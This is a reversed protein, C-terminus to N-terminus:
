QRSGPVCGTAGADQVGGPAVTIRTVHLRDQPDESRDLHDPPVAAHREAPRLLPAQQRHQGDVRALHDALVPQDVREPVPLRRPGRGLRQLVVDHPHAAPQVTQVPRRDARPGRPVEEVTCRGVHPGDLCQDRFTPLRGPPAVVLARGRPELLRQPVPPAGREGLERVPRPRARLGAPEVLQALGHGLLPQGRDQLRTAVVLGDRLALLEHGLLRQALPAPGLQHHREVAVAPLALRQRRVPPQDRHEGVLEPDTGAGLRPPDLRRDERVVRSQQRPRDLRDVGAGRRRADAPLLLERRQEPVQRLGRVAPAPDGEEGTLGADALAPEEGLQRGLGGRATRLHEGAPAQLSRPRQREM